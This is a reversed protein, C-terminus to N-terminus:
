SKQIILWLRGRKRRQEGSIQAPYVCLFSNSTRQPLCVVHQQFFGNCFCSFRTHKKPRKAGFTFVACELKNTYLKKSNNSKEKKSPIIIKSHLFKQQKDQAGQAPKYRRWFNKALAIKANLICVRM